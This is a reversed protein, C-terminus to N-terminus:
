PHRGSRLLERNRPAWLHYCSCHAGLVLSLEVAVRRIDASWVHRHQTGDWVVVHRFASASDQVTPM